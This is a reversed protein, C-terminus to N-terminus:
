LVKFSFMPKPVRPPNYLDSKDKSIDYCLAAVFEISRGKWEDSNTEANAEIFLVLIVVISLIKKM